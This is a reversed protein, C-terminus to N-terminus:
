IPLYINPFVTSALNKYSNEISANQFAHRSFLKSNQGEFETKFCILRHFDDHKYMMISKDLVYKVRTTTFSIDYTIELNIDTHM